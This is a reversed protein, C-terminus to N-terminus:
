NRGIFGYHKEKQKGSRQFCSSVVDYNNISSQEDITLLFAVHQEPM